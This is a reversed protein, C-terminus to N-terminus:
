VIYTAPSLSGGLERVLPVAAKPIPADVLGVGLQFLHAAARKARMRYERVKAEYRANVQQNLMEGYILSLAYLTHWQKLAPTVVVQGLAGPGAVGMRKQLFEDLEMGIEATAVDLKASLSVGETTTISQTASDCIHLDEITSIDGDIFLGME